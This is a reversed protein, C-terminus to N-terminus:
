EKGRIILLSFYEGEEVERAKVVKGEKFCLVDKGISEAILIAEKVFNTPKVIIVTECASIIERLGGLGYALPFIAVKESGIALPVLASASATSLSTIGPIVEVELQKDKLFGILRGGTGYLFPDGICLFIVKKGERAEKLIEISALRDYEEIVSEDKVMPFYLKRIEQASSLFRFVISLARSKGGKRGTPTFIVDAEKIRELAKLTILGEDGPGVGVISIMSM